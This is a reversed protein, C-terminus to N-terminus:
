DLLVETAGVGYKLISADQFKLEHYEEMIKRIEMKLTGAGVGHIFVIRSLGKAIASDLCQRFYSIQTRIMEDEKLTKYDSRIAEIHLDVEAFGESVIYSDVLYSTRKRPKKVSDDNFANMLDKVDAIGKDAHMTLESFDKIAVIIAKEDFFPNERYHAENILKQEKIQFLSVQSDYFSEKKRDVPLFQIKGKLWEKRIENNVTELLIADGADMIGTRITYDGARSSYLMFRYYIEYASFNILYVDIKGSIILEQNQPVLAYYIGKAPKKGSYVPKKVEEISSDETYEEVGEETLAPMNLSEFEGKKAFAKSVPEDSQILVIDRYECPIEFGDEISVYIVGGQAIRSIVGSGTENLFRVKDGRKFKSM